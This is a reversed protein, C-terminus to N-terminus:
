GADKWSTVWHRSCSSRNSKMVGDHALRIRADNPTSRLRLSEMYLLSAIFQPSEDAVLVTVAPDLVQIDEELTTLFRADIGRVLDSIGECFLLRGGDASPEANRVLWEESRVLIRAGPAINFSQKEKHLSELPLEVAM